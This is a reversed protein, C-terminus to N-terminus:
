RDLYEVIFQLYSALGAISLITILWQFFAPFYYLGVLLFIASWISVCWHCAYLEGFFYRAGTGRGKITVEIHDEGLPQEREELLYNRLKSSIFDYRLLRMLRFTAIIVLFFEFGTVM